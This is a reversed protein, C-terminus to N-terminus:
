IDSMLSASAEHLWIQQDHLQNYAAQNQQTHKHNEKFVQNNEEKSFQLHELQTSIEKVDQNNIEKPINEQRAEYVRELQFGPLSIPYNVQYESTNEPQNEQFESTNEPHKVQFESVNAPHNLQFGPTKMQQNVQSEPVNAPQNVESEPVNAPQNVQFEPTKVQQHFEPNNLPQNVQFEQVKQSLNMNPDHINAPINVPQNLKVEQINVDYPQNIKAERTDNIKVDNPHDIKAERTDTTKVNTDNFGAEMQAIKQKLEQERKEAVAIRTLTEHLIRQAEQQAVAFSAMQAAMAAQQHQEMFAFMQQQQFVNGFNKNHDNNGRPILSLPNIAGTVFSGVMGGISQAVKKATKDIKKFDPKKLSYSQTIPQQAYPNPPEIPSMVLPENIYQANTYQAATATTLTGPQSSTSATRVISNNHYNNVPVTVSDNHNNVPAATPSNQYNNVPAIALSNRYNNVPAAASNNQYNNVPAASNNQYNNVPAAASNNQYNNVPAAASNNQNNAPVTKRPDHWTTTATEPFVYYNRGTNSDHCELWGPPLPESM